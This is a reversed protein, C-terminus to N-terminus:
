MPFSEPIEIHQMVGHRDHDFWISSEKVRIQLVLPFEPIM